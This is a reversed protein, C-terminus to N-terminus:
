VNNAADRKQSEGAICAAALREKWHELEEKEVILGWSSCCCSGTRGGVSRNVTIRLWRLILCSAAVEITSPKWHQGEAVDVRLLNLVLTQARVGM